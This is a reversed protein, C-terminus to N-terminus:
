FMSEYTTDFTLESIPIMGADTNGSCPVCEDFWAELENYNVAMQSDPSLNEDETIESDTSSADATAKRDSDYQRSPPVHREAEENLLAQLIKAGRVAMRNEIDLSLGEVAIEVMKRYTDIDPDSILKHLLDLMLIMAAAITFAPVIWIAAVDMEKVRAYERLITAAASICTMRTYAYLPSRFSRILFSRHIM